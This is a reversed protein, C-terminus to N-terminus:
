TQLWGRCSTPELQITTKGSISMGQQYVNLHRNPHRGKHLSLGADSSHSPGAKKNLITTRNIKYKKAAAVQTLVGANMDAVAKAINKHNLTYLKKRVNQGNHYM